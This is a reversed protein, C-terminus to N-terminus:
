GSPLAAGLAVAVIKRLDAERFPKTLVPIHRYAERLGGPGYVTVFVSPLNRATVADAVPYTERGDLNLDLIALDYDLTQAATVAADIRSATAVIACGMDALLDELLMAVM